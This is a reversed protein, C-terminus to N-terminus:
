SNNHKRFCDEEHDNVVGVAQLYAYIITTGVFSMRRKKLDTSIEDSLKTSAPVDKMSKIKNNVQKFNVFAWLYKNFSGFEKQIEMFVKANKIASNIKLKNRIIGENNLLEKVKEESYNSIKKYDFNDFAKRYNERKKLVTIWSLGAQAGELILFEFLTKDDHVEVGWEKDHYKIYLENDTPVWACRKM